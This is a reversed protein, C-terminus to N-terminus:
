NPCGPIVCDPSSCGNVTVTGGGSSDVTFSQDAVASNGKVTGTVHVRYTGPDAIGPFDVFFPATQSYVCLNHDNGAFNDPANSMINDTYNPALYTPGVPVGTGSSHLYNYVASNGGVGANADYIYDLVPGLGDCFNTSDTRAGCSIITSTDLAVPGQVDVWNTGDFKQLTAMVNTVRSTGDDNALSFSYKKNWTNNGGNKLLFSEGAVFGCFAVDVPGGGGGGTCHWCTQPDVPGTPTVTYTWTFHWHGKNTGSNINVNVTKSNADSPLTGGCFFDCKVAQSNIFSNIHGPTDGPDAPAAPPTTCGASDCTVVPGTTVTTFHNAACDQAPHDYDWTADGGIEFGTSNPTLSVMISQATQSSTPSAAHVKPALVLGLALALCGLALSSIILTKKMQYYKSSELKNLQNDPGGRSRCGPLTTTSPQPATSANRTEFRTM